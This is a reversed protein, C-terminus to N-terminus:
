GRCIGTNRPSFQVKDTNTGLGPGHIILTRLNGLESIQAPLEYTVTLTLYRLLVLKLIQVPFNDFRLSRIDLVRLLKFHLYLFFIDPIIGFGVSFCLFSRVLPISPMLHIDGYFNFHFSLHRMDNMDALIGESDRKIVHMLKEKKAERLCLEQLLDHLCCTKIKGNSSRKGVLVLSRDILDELYDEGVEELHKSSKVDLFGEAIWLNILKDVEIECDEPFAAM